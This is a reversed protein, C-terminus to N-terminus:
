TNTCKVNHQQNTFLTRPQSALSLSITPRRLDERPPDEIRQVERIGTKKEAVFGGSGGCGGDHGHEPRLLEIQAAEDVDFDNAVVGLPFDEGLMLWFSLSEAVDDAIQRKRGSGARLCLQLQRLHM